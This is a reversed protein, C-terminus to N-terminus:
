LARPGGGATGYVAHLTCYRYSRRSTPSSYFSHSVQTWLKKHAAERVEEERYELVNDEDLRRAMGEEAGSFAAAPDPLFDYKHSEGM